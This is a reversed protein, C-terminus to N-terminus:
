TMTAPEAWQGRGCHSVVLDDHKATATDPLARQRHHEDSTSEDLAVIRRDLVEVPLLDVDVSNWGHELDEVRGSGLLKRGHAVEVDPVTVTEHDHVAHGRLLRQLVHPCHLVLNQPYLSASLHSFGTEQVPFPFNRHTPYRKSTM